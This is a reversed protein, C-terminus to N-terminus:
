GLIFSFENNELLFGPMKQLICVILIAIICLSYNENKEKENAYLSLSYCKKEILTSMIRFSCPTPEIWVFVTKFTVFFLYILM